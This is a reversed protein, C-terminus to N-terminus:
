VDLLNSYVNEYIIPAKSIWKKSTELAIQRNSVKLKMSLLFDISAPDKIKLVVTYTGDENKYYESIYEQSRKLHLRNEQTFAIIEERINKKIRYEFHGLCSRGDATICYKNESGQEKKELVFGIEILEQLYKILDFYAFWSNTATCIDVLNNTTLPIEMRELIFLLKIKQTFDDEIEM